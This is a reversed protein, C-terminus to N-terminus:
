FGSRDADSLRQCFENRFRLKQSCGLRSDRHADEQDMAESPRTLTKADVDNQVVNVVCSGFVHHRPTRSLCHVLIKTM